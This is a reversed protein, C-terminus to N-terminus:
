IETTTGSHGFQAFWNQIQLEVNKASGYGKTIKDVYPQVYYYYAAGTIGAITLWWLIQFLMAWRAGRRMKHIQRNTDENVARLDEIEQKLEDLDTAM